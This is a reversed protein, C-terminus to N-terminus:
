RRGGCRLAPLLLSLATLWNQRLYALKHPAISFELVFHLVFLVWIGINLADLVPSLGRTFEVIVLILWVVALYTMPRELASEIQRLLDSRESELADAAPERLDNM